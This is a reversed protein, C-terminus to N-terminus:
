NRDLYEQLGKDRLVCSPCKGCGGEVGYYCTHTNQRVYDLYGLKDAMEWTQAKTLYMLPTKINFTFDMALNMSVNMSKIFIDRCDPYGSFDTECVGIIIDNIGQQKAYCGALLLFLMNRGDVFTNPYDSGQAAKIEQSDDILANNTTQKIVSTDIVTQKVGLDKAIWKAKDLEIGHRQGYQFSITEVNERGYDVIAQLLCTTSDQGGSFIVLAKRNKM